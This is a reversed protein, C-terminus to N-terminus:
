GFTLLCLLLDFITRLPACSFLKFFKVTSNGKPLNIDTVPTDPLPLDVSTVSINDFAICFSNVLFFQTGGPTCLLM